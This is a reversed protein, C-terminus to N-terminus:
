AAVPQSARAKVSRQKRAAAATTPAADAAPPTAVCTDAGSKSKRPKRKSAVVQLKGADESVGAATAAASAALKSSGMGMVVNNSAQVASASTSGMGVVVNNSVVVGSTSTSSPEGDVSSTSVLAASPQGVSAGSTVTTSPTTATSSARGNAVGNVGTAPSPLQALTAVASAGGTVHVARERRTTDTRGSGKFRSQVGRAAGQSSTEVVRGAGGGGGRSGRGSSMAAHQMAMAGTPRGVGASGASSSSASHSSDHMPLWEKLSAVRFPLRLRRMAKAELVRVYEVSLGLESAVQSLTLPTGVLSVPGMVDNGWADDMGPLGPDLHMGSGLGLPAGGADGHCYSSGGLTGYAAYLPSQVPTGNRGRAAPSSPASTVGDYQLASPPPVLGYRLKVVEREASPLTCLLAALDAALVSADAAAEARTASIDAGGLSTASAGLSSSAGDTAAITDLLTDGKADVNAVASELSTPERVAKLYAMVRAPPLGVAPGLEEVTVAGTRGPQQSLHQAARRIKAVAAQVHVPVRVTRGHDEVCRRIAQRVRLVGYTSFRAKVPDFGDAAARLGAIGATVLDEIALGSPGYAQIYKKACYVALGLNYRVLLDAAADARTLLARYLASWGPGLHADVEADTLVTSTTSSSSSPSTIDGTTTSTSNSDAGELDSSVGAEDVAKPPRGRGRGKSSSAKVASSSASSSSTSGQDLRLALEKLQQRAAKAQQVVKGLAAEDAATLLKGHYVNALFQALAHSSEPRATRKVETLQAHM